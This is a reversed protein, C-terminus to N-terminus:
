LSVSIDDCTLSRGMFKMMRQSTVAIATPTATHITGPMSRSPPVSAHTPMAMKPKIRDSILMLMLGMMCTSLRGMLTIVSPM